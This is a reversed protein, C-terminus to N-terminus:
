RKEEPPPMVLVARPPTTRIELQLRSDLQRVLLPRVEAPALEVRLADFIGERLRSARLPTSLVRLTAPRPWAVETAHLVPSTTPASSLLLPAGPRLGYGALFSVAALAAVAAWSAVAPVRRGRVARCERRVRELDGFRRLAEARAEDQGMGKALNEQTARDIHFAIEERIERDDDSSSRFWERIGM